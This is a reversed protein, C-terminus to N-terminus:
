FIACKEIFHGLSRSWYWLMGIDREFTINLTVEYVKLFVVDMVEKVNTEVELGDDQIVVM